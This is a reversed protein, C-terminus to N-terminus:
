FFFWGIYVHPLFQLSDTIVSPSFIWNVGAGINFGINAQHDIGVGGTIVNLSDEDSDLTSGSLSVSGEIKTLTYGASVFPSLNWAPILFAKASAGYSTISGGVTAGSGVDASASVNGYNASLQVWPLVNFKLNYGLFSPTPDGLLGVGLGIRNQSRGGGKANAEFPSVLLVAGVVFVKLFKRSMFPGGKLLTMIKALGEHGALDTM